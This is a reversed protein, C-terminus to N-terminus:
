PTPDPDPTTSPKGGASTLARNLDAETTTTNGSGTTLEITKLEGFRGYSISWVNRDEDYTVQDNDGLTIGDVFDQLEDSDCENNDEGCSGDIYAIKAGSLINSAEALIARDKSKNIINGIAPVAIAAVIALIVIVALLEILTLGKQNKLLKKNLLKKFM